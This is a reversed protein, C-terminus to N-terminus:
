SPGALLAVPAPTIDLAAALRQGQGANASVVDFLLQVYLMSSTADVQTNYDSGALLTVGGWTILPKGGTWSSVKFRPGYRVPAGAGVQPTLNIHNSTAAVVVRGTALNVGNVLTESGGAFTDTTALSGVLITVPATRYDADLGNAFTSVERADGSVATLTQDLRLWASEVYNGAPVTGGDNIRLAIHSSPRDSGTAVIARTTNTPGPNNIDRVDILVRAV